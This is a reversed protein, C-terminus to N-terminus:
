TKAVNTLPELFTCHLTNIYVKKSTSKPGGLTYVYSLLLVLSPEVTLLWVCVYVNM